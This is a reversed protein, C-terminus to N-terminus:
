KIYGKLGPNEALLDAVASRAAATGKASRIENVLSQAENIEAQFDQTRKAPSLVNGAGTGAYSLIAQIDAQSGGSAIAGGALKKLMGEYGGAMDLADGESREMYGQKAGLPTATITGNKNYTLSLKKTGFQKQLDAILQDKGSMKIKSGNAQKVTKTQIDQIRRNTTYPEAGPKAAQVKQQLGMISNFLSQAVDGGGGGGGGRNKEKYVEWAFDRDEKLQDLELKKMELSQQALKLANQLSDGIVDRRKQQGQRIDTLDNATGRYRNTLQLERIYPDLIQGAAPPTQYQNAVAQDHSFLEDIKSKEQSNLNNTVSDNGFMQERLKPEINAFNAVSQGYSASKEQLLKSTAEYDM